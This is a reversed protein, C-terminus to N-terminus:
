RGGVQVGRVKGTIATTASLTIPGSLEVAETTDTITTITEGFQNLVAATGNVSIDYRDAGAIRFTQTETILLDFPDASLMGM